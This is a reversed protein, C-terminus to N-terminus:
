VRNMPESIVVDSGQAYGVSHQAAAGAVIAIIIDSAATLKEFVDVDNGDFNLGFDCIIIITTVVIM